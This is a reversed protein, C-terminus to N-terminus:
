VPVDVSTVVDCCDAVVAGTTVGVIEVVDDEDLSVLEMAEEDVSDVLESALEVADLEIATDLEVSDEDADAELAVLETSDVESVTLGVLEAPTLELMALSVELAAVVDTGRSDSVVEAEAEDVSILEAAESVSLM